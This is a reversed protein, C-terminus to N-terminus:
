QTQPPKTNKILTRVLFSPDDEYLRLLEYAEPMKLASLSRATIYRYRESAHNMYGALLEISRQTTINGLTGLAAPVYKKANLLDALFDLLLSDGTASILAMSNKVALSDESSLTRFLGAKFFTSNKVLEELARYELGSKTAIKTQLIYETAEEDRALMISRAKRVRQISSGVEWESAISFIESIVALSDIDASVEEALAEIKTKELINLEKDRGIGYTGRQWTHNNTYLTDPYSDKGGADLFLGIGGTGRAMNAFGLSSSDKREYRDDGSSDVFIGVSNSLGLGNGGPISYADNGSKDILIGLSWDHGAGQGPGNRTYYNDDGEGDFLIGYALHIGSGQPYYIANYVDNGSEDILIGGAYWYAVGQAYVGGIYKDNGSHDYLLGLGGAFDPRFGFGMGQGMSRYDNPMLPKHYYKGGIYYVDDGAHDILAGVAMTGGLGQAFSTASYSDSGKADLLMGLGFMAAGQSFLGSRYVDDGSADVHINIGMFACFAFDDTQYLDRGDADFS